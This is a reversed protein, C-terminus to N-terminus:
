KEMQDQYQQINKISIPIPKKSFNIEFNGDYSKATSLAIDSISLSCKGGSTFKLVIENNNNKGKWLGYIDEVKYIRSCSLNFLM